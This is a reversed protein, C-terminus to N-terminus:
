HDLMKFSLASLETSSGRKRTDSKRWGHPQQRLVLLGAGTSEGVGPPQDGSVKEKEM